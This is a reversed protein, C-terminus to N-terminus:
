DIIVQFYTVICVWQHDEFMAEVDLNGVDNSINILPKNGGFLYNMM